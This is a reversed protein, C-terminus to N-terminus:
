TILRNGYDFCQSLLSGSTASSTSRRRSGSLIVIITPESKIWAVSANLFKKKGLTTSDCNAWFNQPWRIKGGLFHGIEYFPQAHTSWVISHHQHCKVTFFFINVIAAEKIRNVKMYKGIKGKINLASKHGRQAHTRLKETLLNISKQLPFHSISRKYSAISNVIM